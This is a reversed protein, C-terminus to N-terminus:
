VADKKRLKEYTGDEGQILVQDLLGEMGARFEKLYRSRLDAQEATEVDTLGEAKKKRALQNIRDILERDM